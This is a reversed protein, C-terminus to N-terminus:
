LIVKEVTFTHKDSENLITADWGMVQILVLDWTDKLMKCGLDIQIITIYNSILIPLVFSPVYFPWKPNSELFQMLM